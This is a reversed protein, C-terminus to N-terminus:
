TKPEGILYDVVYKNENVIKDHVIKLEDMLCNDDVNRTEPV